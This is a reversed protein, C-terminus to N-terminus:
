TAKIRCQWKRDRGICTELKDFFKITIPGALQYSLYNTKPHLPYAGGGLILLFTTSEYGGEKTPIEKIETPLVFLPPLKAWVVLKSGGSKNFHRYWAVIKRNSTPVTGVTHIKIKNWQYFMSERYRVFGMPSM